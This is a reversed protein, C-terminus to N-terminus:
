AAAEEDDLPPEPEGVPEYRGIVDSRPETLGLARAQELYREYQQPAAERAAEALREEVARRELENRERRSVLEWYLGRASGHFRPDDELVRLVVAELVREV